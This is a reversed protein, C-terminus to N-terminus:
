QMSFPPYEDVLLLAYAEVRLRWRLAGVAFGYLGAPYAGTFLIIFWAAITGLGWLVEILALVFVHPLVLILRVAITLRNRPLPPDAVDVTVPYPGDGFPPYADELLMFYGLLRARWRLYMTTLQRIGAIHVGAVVLTIWSVIALFGVVAGFLGGESVLSSTDSRYAFGIGLGGVLILHPIALVFRFLTTLRNRGAHLPEVAVTVPYGM